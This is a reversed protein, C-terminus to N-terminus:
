SYMRWNLEHVPEFAMERRARRRPRNKEHGRPAAFPMWLLVTKVQVVGVFAARNKSCGSRPTMCERRTFVSDVRRDAQVDGTWRVLCHGSSSSQPHSGCDGRRATAMWLSFMTRAVSDVLDIQREPRVLESIGRHGQLIVQSGARRNLSRCCRSFRM